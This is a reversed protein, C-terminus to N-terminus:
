EEELEVYEAIIKLAEEYSGSAKARAMMQQADPKRDELELAAYAMGLIYFINGSRGTRNFTVKM